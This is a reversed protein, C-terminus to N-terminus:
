PRHSRFVAQGYCSQTGLEKEIVLLRNYKATRESRCPSGAKIQGANTAVALDAIFTDETDGARHSVIVGYGTKKALAIVELTETLTGIQNPKVLIANGVGERIGRALVEAHTAFLDDGVLQVQKGLAQTLGKWGDWDQESLGDEISVIPYDNILDGYLQAMGDARLRTGDSKKFEYEDNEFFESAAVDLAICIERGPHYGAATIADLVLRIAEENQNLDPAFGGEDGVSTTRGAEDLLRELTLFTEVGYRLGEAFTPAGAPFVMFEQFDVNNRAHRGGNLINMLPIPLVWAKESKMGALERLHRYLPKEQVRAAVRAVALSVGLMANAGLNSKDNTGDMERLLGDLRRQDSASERRLRPAIVENVNAVARRVGQGLYRKPDRDRLECAELEGISAGAPVSAMATARNYLTVVVGLTPRGRSDLMELASISRIKDM